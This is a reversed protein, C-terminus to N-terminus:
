KKRCTMSNLSLGSNIIRSGSDLPGLVLFFSGIESNSDSSCMSFQTGLIIKTLAGKLISVDSVSPMAMSWMELIAGM